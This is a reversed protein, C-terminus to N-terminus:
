GGSFSGRTLLFSGTGCSCAGNARQPAIHPLLPGEHARFWRVLPRWFFHLGGGLFGRWEGLGGALLSVGEGQPQQRM